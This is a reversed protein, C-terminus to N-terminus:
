SGKIILPVTYMNDIFSPASRALDDINPSTVNSDPRLYQTVSTPHHMPSVHTTDITQLHEINEITARCKDIQNAVDDLDLYALRAIQEFQQTTITM